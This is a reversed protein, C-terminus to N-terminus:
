SRLGKAKEYLMEVVELAELGDQGTVVPASDGRLAAIFADTELQLADRKEVTQKDIVFQNEDFESVNFDRTTHCKEVTMDASNAIFFKNKELVKVKREISSSARSVSIFAHTKDNFEFHAQCVDFDNSIVPRAVVSFNQIDNKKKQSLWLMLDIDHIMLDHIVSVDAGRRRFPAHRILEFSEPKHLLTKLHTLTPNFREIHGVTLFVKNAEATKLLKKAHEVTDTIPKEVNVHIKHDLFFQALEYHARTSAAITVADVEGVLEKYDSYAKVSLSEAVKQAQSIQADCVGRLEVHPNNKYKQAHFQGLYGVGIVATRIKANKIQTWPSATQHAM